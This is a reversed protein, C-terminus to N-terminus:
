LYSHPEILHYFLKGYHHNQRLSSSKSLPLAGKPAEVTLLLPM